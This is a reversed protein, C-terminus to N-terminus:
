VRRGMESLIDAALTTPLCAEECEALGCAGCSPRLKKSDSICRKKLLKWFLYEEDNKNKARRDEGIKHLMATLWTFVDALEEKLKEIASNMLCEFLANDDRTLKGVRQRVSRDIPKGESEKRKIAENVLPGISFHNEKHWDLETIKILEQAVEGVEEQFHAALRWVDTDYHGSGYIEILSSILKDLPQDVAKRTTSNPNGRVKRYQARAKERNKQFESERKAYAAPREKRQEIEKRYVSCYCPKSGCKSCANPYKELIWKGYSEELATYTEVRRRLRDGIPDSSPKVPEPAYLYKGIFACMWGFLKVIRSEAEELEGKRVHEALISADVVIQMWLDLPEMDENVHFYIRGIFQVWQDLSATAPLFPPPEKKFAQSM